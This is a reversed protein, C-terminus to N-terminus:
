EIVEDAEALLAPPVTLGLSKATKLSIILEFKTPLWFPIDGPKAGTFIRDIREAVRHGLDEAAAGGTYAMLGGADTFRRDFYMGPVRLQEAWDLILQAHRLHEEVDPVMLAQVNGAAAAFVRRYEAEQIPSELLMGHLSIGLRQAAERANAGYPSEWVSRPTLYGIKAANPVIEKLLELRKSEIVVGADVVVGTINASPRALNTTVGWTIPDGGMMVIPITATAAAFHRAFRGTIVFILDPNSNVIDRALEPFRDARGEASYRAVVLNQGEVYGLRRLERFLAQLEPFGGAESMDTVPTSPAAMAIRYVRPRQQAQAQLAASALLGGIVDRRRM